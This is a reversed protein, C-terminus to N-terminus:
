RSGDTAKVLALGALIAAAQGHTRHICPRGRRFEADDMAPLDDFLLSATHFAEVSTALAMAPASKLGEARGVAWALQARWLSGTTSLIELVAGRLRGEVSPPVRILSGIASRVREFDAESLIRWGVAASPAAVIKPMSVQTAM